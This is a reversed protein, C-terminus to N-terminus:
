RPASLCDVTHICWESFSGRLRSVGFKASSWAHLQALVFIEIEDLKGGEFIIRNRHTWITKALAVWTGKWVCNQKNTLGFLYFNCFYNVIDNTRVVTMRVWKDCKIWLRQAVECNIMSILSFGNGGGHLVFIFPDWIFMNNIAEAVKCCEVM